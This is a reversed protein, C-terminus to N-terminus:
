RRLSRALRGIDSDPVLDAVAWLDDAVDIDRLAPVHRVPLGLDALRELQAAGTTEVSMPIDAFVADSDVGDSLGLLWFGGDAAAGYVARPGATAGHSDIDVVVHGLADTLVAVTVQPTDMAIVVAAGGVDAFAAALREDLGAGRQAVIEFGPPVWEGATGELVLVHRAAPVAALARLTDHVCAWAVACAEDLTLPPCLRTKSRGAVPAKTIVMVAGDLPQAGLVARDIPLHEPM